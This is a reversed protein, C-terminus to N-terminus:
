SLMHTGHRIPLEPMSYSYHGLFLNNIRHHLVCRWRTDKSPLSLGWSCNRQAMSYQAQAMHTCLMMTSSVRILALGSHVLKEVRSRDGTAEGDICPRHIIFSSRRGPSLHSREASSKSWFLSASHANLGFEVLRRSAHPVLQKPSWKRYFHARSLISQCGRRMGQVITREDRQEEAAKLSPEKM